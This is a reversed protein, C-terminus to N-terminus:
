ARTNESISRHGPREEPNEEIPFRCFGFGKENKATEPLRISTEYEKKPRWKLRAPECKSKTKAITIRPPKTRADVSSTYNSMRLPQVPGIGLVKASNSWAWRNYRAPLKIKATAIARHSALWANSAFVEVSFQALSFTYSAIETLGKKRNLTNHRNSVPEYIRLQSM